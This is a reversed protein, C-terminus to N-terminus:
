RNLAQRVVEGQEGAYGADKYPTLTAGIVRIGREHARVIIQKDAAILADATVPDSPGRPSFSRGINNISELLIVAKVGPVGLV